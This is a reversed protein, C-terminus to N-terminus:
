LMLGVARARMQRMFLELIYLKLRQSFRLNASRQILFVSEELWRSAIIAVRAHFLGVRQLLLLLKYRLWTSLHKRM